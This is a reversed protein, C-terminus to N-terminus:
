QAHEPNEAWGVSGDPLEDPLDDFEDPARHAEPVRLRVTPEGLTARAIAECSLTKM